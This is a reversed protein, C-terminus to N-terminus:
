ETEEIENFGYRSRREAVAKDDHGLNSDVKLETLTEGVPKHEYMKSKREQWDM